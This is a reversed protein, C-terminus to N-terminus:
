RAGAGWSQCRGSLSVQKCVRKISRTEVTALQTAPSCVLGENKLEEALISRISIIAQAKAAELDPYLLGERDFADDVSNRVHFYYRKM